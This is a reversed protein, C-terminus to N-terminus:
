YQKWKEKKLTECLWDLDQKLLIRNFPESKTSFNKSREIFLEKVEELTFKREEIEKISIERASNIILEFKNPKEVLDIEALVKIIPKNNNYGSIYSSIFEKPINPLIYNSIIINNRSAIEVLFGSSAIIKKFQYKKHDTMHTALRSVNNHSDFYYEGIKVTKESLIHMKQYYYVMKNLNGSGIRLKNGFKVLDSDFITTELVVECEQYYKGNIEIVKM